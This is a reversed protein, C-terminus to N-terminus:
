QRNHQIYSFITGWIASILSACIGRLFKPVITYLLMLAPPYFYYCAITAPICKEKVAAWAKGFDGRSGLLNTTFVLGAIMPVCLLGMDIFVGTAAQKWKQSFDVYRGLFRSLAAM